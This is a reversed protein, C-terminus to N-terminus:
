LIRAFLVPPIEVQRFNTVERRLAREKKKEKERREREIEREEKEKKREIWRYLDRASQRV